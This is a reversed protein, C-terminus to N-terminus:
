MVGYVAGPSVDRFPRKKVTAYFDKQRFFWANEVSFAQPNVVQMDYNLVLFPILKKLELMGLHKGLCVRRGAGFTLVSQELKKHKEVGALWREPEWSDPNDGFTRRHRNIVYPNGGVLTGGPLHKGLVVVGEPPVVREFPLAFPPHLRVGEQICADLYALGCVEGWKPYRTPLNAAMLEQRLKELTEPHTLLNHRILKCMVTRMVTGTSDSGAIVNSFVWATPAWAPVKTSSQQIELFYSLYDRFPRERERHAKTGEASEVSQLRERIVKGVFGLISMGPTKLLGHVVRNKNIIPDLWTIQTLASHAKMYDFITELMGGVDRGEDLFGYRKSFSLTGMVDFAFYQLWDGFNFTAGTDSFREDLQKELCELVEEVLGEFSVVNSLSFLPAIPSKITKHIKEDQTNFVALLSGSDRTYPRLTAYFDSKPFGPRMPYITPIAEPNSISVMNPGIRVVEGYKRHIEEHILHARGTKVWLVRQLNTFKACLPGPIRRLRWWTGFVHLGFLVCTGLLLLTLPGDPLYAAPSTYARM